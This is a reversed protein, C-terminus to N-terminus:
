AGQHAFSHFTLGDGVLRVDNLREVEVAPVHANAGGFPRGM